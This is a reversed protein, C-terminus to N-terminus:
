TTETLNLRKSRIFAMGHTRLHIKLLHESEFVKYCVNCEFSQAQETANNEINSLQQPSSELANETKLKNKKYLLGHSSLFENTQKIKHIMFLHMRLSDVATFCLGCESCRIGDSVRKHEQTHIQFLNHDKTTFVCKVCSFTEEQTKLKKIPQNDVNIGHAQEKNDTETSQKAVNPQLAIKSNNSKNRLTKHKSIIHKELQIRRRFIKEKNTEKCIQCSYFHKKKEHSIQIHKVLSDNSKCVLNCLHCPFMPKKSHINKQHAILWNEQKFLEHCEKCEFVTPLKGQSSEGSCFEEHKHLDEKTLFAANTCMLCMYVGSQRHGLIHQMLRNWSKYPASCYQCFKQTNRTRTTVASSDNLKSEHVKSSHMQLQGETAFFIQCLSCYAIGKDKCKKSKIAENETKAENKSNIKSMEIKHIAKQHTQLNHATKCVCDCFECRHQMFDLHHCNGLHSLLLSRRDFIVSCVSCRFAYDVGVKLDNIHVDVHNMLQQINHFVTDCLPCKYIEKKQEQESLHISQHHNQYFSKAKFAMPCISCKIFTESHISIIHDKLEPSYCFKAFCKPCTLPAIRSFHVCKYKLHHRFSVLNPILQGCEPCVHPTKEHHIRRHAKQACHRPLYTQCLACYYTFTCATESHGFHNALARATHFKAGCEICDFNNSEETTKHVPIQECDGIELIDTISEPLPVIDMKDLKITVPQSPYHSRVHELVSCKNYFILKTTCNDCNYTIQMCKRTKHIHLSSKFLFTDGCEACSHYSVTIKDILSKPLPAPFYAPILNTRSFKKQKSNNALQGTGDSKKCIISDNPLLPKEKRLVNPVKLQFSNSSISATTPVTSGSPLSVPLFIAYPSVPSIKVSGLPQANSITTSSGSSNTSILQTANSSANLLKRIEHTEGVSSSANSVSETKSDYVKSSASENLESIDTPEKKIYNEIETINLSVDENHFSTALNSSTIPMNSPLIISCETEDPKSFNSSISSNLFSDSTVKNDFSTSAIESLVRKSSNKNIKTFSSKNEGNKTAEKGVNTHLSSKEKTVSKPKSNRNKTLCKNISQNEDPSSVTFTSKPVILLNKAKSSVTKMGVTDLPNSSISSHSSTFVVPVSQDTKFYNSSKIQANKQEAIDEDEEVHLKKSLNLKKKKASLLKNKKLCLSEKRSEKVNRKENQNASNADNLSASFIRKAKINRRPRKSVNSSETESITARAPSSSINKDDQDTESSKNLSYVTNVNDKDAEIKSTLEPTNAKKKIDTLVEDPVQKHAVDNNMTFSTIPLSTEDTKSTDATVFSSAEETPSKSLTRGEDLLHDSTNEETVKSLKNPALVTLNKEPVLFVEEGTSKEAIKKSESEPPLEVFTKLNREHTEEKSSLVQFNSVRQLEKLSSDFDNKCNPSRNQEISAEPSASKKSCAKVNDNNPISIPEVFTNIESSELQCDSSLSQDQKNYSIEEKNSIKDFTDSINNFPKICKKPLLTIKGALSNLNNKSEFSSNDDSSTSNKKSQESDCNSSPFFNDNNDQIQPTHLLHQSDWIMDKNNCKKFDPQSFPSNKATSVCCNHSIINPQADVQFNSLKSEFSDTSVLEMEKNSEMQHSNLLCEKQDLQQTCYVNSINNEKALTNDESSFAENTYVRPQDKPTEETPLDARVASASANALQMLPSELISPSDNTDMSEMKKLINM